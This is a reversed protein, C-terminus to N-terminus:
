EEEGEEDEEEEVTITTLDRPLPRSGPKRRSLVAYFGSLTTGMRRPSVSIALKLGIQALRFFASWSFERIYISWYVGGVLISGGVINGLTVPILNKVVFGAWTLNQLALEGGSM